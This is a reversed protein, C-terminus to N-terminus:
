GVMRLCRERSPATLVTLLIKDNFLYLHRGYLVCEDCDSYRSTLKHEVWISIYGKISEHRLGTDYVRKLMRFSTKKTWGTREKLRKFAHESIFITNGDYEEADHRLDSLTRVRCM